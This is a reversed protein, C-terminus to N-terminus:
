RSSPPAGSAWSACRPGCRWGTTSQLLLPPPDAPVCRPPLSAAPSGPLCRGGRCPRGGAPGVACGRGASPPRQSPDGGQCGRSAHAHSAPPPAGTRVLPFRRPFRPRKRRGRAAELAGFRALCKLAVKTPRALRGRALLGPGMRLAVAAARGPLRSRPSSARRGGRTGGCDGEESRAQAGRGERGMPRGRRPGRGRGSGM